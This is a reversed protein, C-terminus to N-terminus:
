TPARLAAASSAAASAPTAHSSCPTKGSTSSRAYSAQRQEITQSSKRLAGRDFYATCVSGEVAFDGIYCDRPTYAKVAENITAYRQRIESLVAESAQACARQSSCAIALVVGAACTRGLSRGALWGILSWPMNM